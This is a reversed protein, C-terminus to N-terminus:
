RIRPNTVTRFQQVARGFTWLWRYQWLLLLPCGSAVSSRWDRAATPLDPSSPTRM